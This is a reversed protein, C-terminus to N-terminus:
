NKKAWSNTAGNEPATSLSSAYELLTACKGVATLSTHKNTFIHMHTRIHAHTYTHGIDKNAHM